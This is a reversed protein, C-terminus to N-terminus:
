RSMNYAAEPNRIRMRIGIKVKMCIRIHSSVKIRIQIRSRMLTIRIQSWQRVSYVGVAGNETEAGRNHADV